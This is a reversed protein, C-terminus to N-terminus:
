KKKRKNVKERAFYLIEKVVVRYEGYIVEERTEFLKELNAKPLMYSALPLIYLPLLYFDDEKFIKSRIEQNKSRKGKLCLLLGTKQSVRKKPLRGM